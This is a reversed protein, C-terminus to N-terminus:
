EFFSPLVSNMIKSGDVITIQSIAWSPLTVLGLDGVPRGLMEIMKLTKQVHNEAALIDEIDGFTKAQFELEIIEKEENGTKIPTGLRYLIPASIGDGSELVEGPPSTDKLLHSTFVKGYALPMMLLNEVNMPVVTGDSKHAKVQMLIRERQLHKTLDDGGAAENAREVCTAFDKFTMNQVEFYDIPVEGIFVPGKDTEIRM